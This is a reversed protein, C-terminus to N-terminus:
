HVIEQFLADWYTISGFNVLTKCFNGIILFFLLFKSWDGFMKYYRTLVVIAAIGLGAYVMAIIVLYPTSQEVKIFDM